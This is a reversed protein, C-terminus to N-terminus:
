CAAQRFLGGRNRDVMLLPRESPYHTLLKATNFIAKAWVCLGRQPHAPPGLRPKRFTKRDSHRECTQDLPVCALANATTDGDACRLAIVLDRDEQTPIAFSATLDRAAFPRSLRM